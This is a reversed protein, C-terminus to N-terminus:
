WSAQQGAAGTKGGWRIEIGTLLRMSIPGPRFIEQDQLVVRTAVGRVLAEADLWLGVHRWRRVVGARVFPTVIPGSATRRPSVGRSDARLLGVATGGCLPVSWKPAALVGCASVGVTGQQVRGASSGPGQARRPALYTGEAAIRVHPWAVGASLRSALTPGPGGGVDLGLGIRVLARPAATRRRSPAPRPLPSTAADFDDATSPALIPQPRSTPSREPPDLEQDMSPVLTVAIVLAVSDALSECRTARLERVGTRAGVSTTLRLRYDDEDGRTVAGTVAMVGYGDLRAETLADVQAKIEAATPCSAPAQWDMTYEAPPTQLDGPDQGSLGVGLVLSLLLSSM